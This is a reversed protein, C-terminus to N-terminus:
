APQEELLAQVAAIFTPGLTTTATALFSGIRQLLSKKGEDDLTGANGREEIEDITDALGAADEEPLGLAPITSRIGDLVSMIKKIDVKQDQTQTIDGQGTMGFQGHFDGGITVNQGGSVTSRRNLYSQIQWPYQEACDTGTDTVQAAYVDSSLATVQILRKDSLWRMAHELDDRDFPYGYFNAVPHHFFRGLAVPGGDDEEHLWWLLAHRCANRREQRSSRRERAQEADRRGNLVLNISFDWYSSITSGVRIAHRSKLGEIILAAHKQFLPIDKEHGVANALEELRPARGPHADEYDLLLDLVLYEAVGSESTSL